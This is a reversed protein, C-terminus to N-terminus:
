CSTPGPQYRLLYLLQDRSITDSQGRQKRDRKYRHTKYSSASRLRTRDKDKATLWCDELAGHLIISIADALDLYATKTGKRIKENRKTERETTDRPLHLPQWGPCSVRLFSQNQWPCPGVQLMMAIMFHGRHGGRLALYHLALRPPASSSYTPRTVRLFNARDLLVWEIGLHTAGAVGRSGGGGEKRRRLGWLALAEM